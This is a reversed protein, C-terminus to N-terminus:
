LNFGRDLFEKFVTDSNVMLLLFLKANELDMLADLPLIQNLIKM